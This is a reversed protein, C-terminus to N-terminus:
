AVLPLPRSATLRHPHTRQIEGEALQKERVSSGGPGFRPYSTLAM